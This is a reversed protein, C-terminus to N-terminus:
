CGERYLRASDFAASPVSRLKSLWERELVRRTRLDEAISDPAAGKWLARLTAAGYRQRIYGAFSAAGTYGPLEPVTRFDKLMLEVSPLRGSALYGAAIGDVSHGQCEGQALAALGETLWAGSRLEGWRVAAIAHTLEHRLLPNYGPGAVLVATLEGPQAFGGIPRGAIRAMEGRTDVLFVELRPEDGRDPEGLTTLAALRAHEVSDALEPARTFVRSSRPTHIRAHATELVRWDFENREILARATPGTGLM